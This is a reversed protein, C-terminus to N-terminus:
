AKGHPYDNQGKRLRIEGRKGRAELTRLGRLSPVRVSGCSAKRYCTKLKKPKYARLYTFLRSSELHGKFDLHTRDEIRTCYRTHKPRSDADPHSKCNLTDSEFRIDTAGQLSM